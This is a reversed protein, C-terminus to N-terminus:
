LTHVNKAIEVVVHITIKVSVDVDITNIRVRHFRYTGIISVYTFHIERLHWNPMNVERLTVAVVGRKIIM